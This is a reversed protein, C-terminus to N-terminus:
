KIAMGCSLYFFQLYGQGQALIVNDDKAKRNQTDYELCLTQKGLTSHKKLIQVIYAPMANKEGYILGTEYIKQISLIESVKSNVTVQIDDMRLDPSIDQVSFEGDLNVTYNENRLSSLIMPRFYIFLTAFGGNSPWAFLSYVEGNGVKFDLREDGDVLMHWGWCELSTKGYSDDDIYFANYTGNPVTISYEGVNNGWTGMYSNKGDFGIRYLLLCGQFGDGTFNTIRGKLTSYDCKISETYEQDVDQYKIYITSPLESLIDAVAKFILVGVDPAVEIEYDEFVGSATLTFARTYLLKGSSSSAEVTLEFPLHIKPLEAYVGVHTKPTFFAPQHIGEATQNNNFWWADIKAM